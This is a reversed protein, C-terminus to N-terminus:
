EGSRPQEIMRFLSRLPINAFDLNSAVRRRGGYFISEMLREVQLFLREAEESRIQSMFHSCWDDEFDIPRHTNNTYWINGIVTRSAAFSSTQAEALASLAENEHIQWVLTCILHPLYEQITSSSLKKVKLISHISFQLVRERLCHINQPCVDIAWLNRLSVTLARLEPSRKKARHYKRCLAEFRKKLLPLVINGHGATPEFFIIAEDSWISNDFINLMQNVYEEPTFVEGLDNIRNRSRHHLQGIQRSM